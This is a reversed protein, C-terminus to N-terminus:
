NFKAILFSKVNESTKTATKQGKLAWGQSTPAENGNSTGLARTSTTPVSLTTRSAIQTVHQAWKRRVSDYVTECELFLKNVGTDMHNQAKNEKEFTVM